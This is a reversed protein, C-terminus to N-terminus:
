FGPGPKPAQKPQPQAPRPPLMLDLMASLRARKEDLLAKIGPAQASDSIPDVNTEMHKLLRKMSLAAPMIMRMRETRPVDNSAYLDRMDQAAKLAGDIMAVSDALMIQRAELPATAMDQMQLRMISGQVLAMTEANFKKELFPMDAPGLDRLALALLAGGVASAGVGPEASLLQAADIAAALDEPRPRPDQTVFGYIRGIEDDQMIGSQAFAPYDRHLAREAVAQAPIIGLGVLQSMYDDNLANFEAVALSFAQELQPAGTKGTVSNEIRAYFQPDPLLPVNVIGEAGIEGGALGAILEECNKKFSEMGAMLSAVTLVQVPRSADGLYAYRTRMHDNCEGILLPVAEGFQRAILGHTEAPMVMLLATALLTPNTIGNQVLGAALKLHYGDRYPVPADNLNQSYTMYAKYVLPDAPLGTDKFNM